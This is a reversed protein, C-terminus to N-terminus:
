VVFLLLIYKDRIRSLIVDEFYDLCREQVSSEPDMVLPLVGRVWAICLTHNTPYELLLGTLSAIAQKRISVSSDVCREVILCIDAEELCTLKGLIELVQMAAKRVGCKDDIIRRRLLSLLEDKDLTVNRDAISEEREFCSRIEEKLPESTETAQFTLALCALSKARV